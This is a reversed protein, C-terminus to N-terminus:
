QRGNNESVLCPVRFSMLILVIIIFFGLSGAIECHNKTWESIVPFPAVLQTLIRRHEEEKM